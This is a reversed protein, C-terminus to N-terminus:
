TVFSAIIHTPLNADKKKRTLSHENLTWNTEEVVTVVKAKHSAKAIPKTDTAEANILSTTVGVAGNFNNKAVATTPAEPGMGALMRPVSTHEASIQSNTAGVPDDGNNKAIDTSCADPGMVEIKSCQYM